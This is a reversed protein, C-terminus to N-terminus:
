GGTPGLTMSAAYIATETELATMKRDWTQYQWPVVSELHTLRPSPMCGEGMGTRILTSRRRDYTERRSAPIFVWPQIEFDVPIHCDRVLARCVAPWHTEWAQLRGFL